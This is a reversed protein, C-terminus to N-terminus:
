LPRRSGRSLQSRLERSRTFIPAVDLTGPFEYWDTSGALRERLKSHRVAWGGHLFDFGAAGLEPAGSDRSFAPIAITM